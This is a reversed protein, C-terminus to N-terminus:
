LAESVEAATEAALRYGKPHKMWGVQVAAADEHLDLVTEAFQVLDAFLGTKTQAKVAQAQSVSVTRTEAM